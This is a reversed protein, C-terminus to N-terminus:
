FIEHFDMIFHGTVTDTHARAHQRGKRYFRMFLRYRLKRNRNGTGAPSIQFQNVPLPFIGGEHRGAMHETKILYQKCVLVSSILNRQFPQVPRRLFRASYFHFFVPCENDTLSSIECVAKIFSLTHEYAQIMRPPFIQVTGHLEIDPSRRRIIVTINLLFPLSCMIMFANDSSVSDHNMLRFVANREVAYHGYGRCGHLVNQVHFDPPVNVPVSANIGYNLDPFVLFKRFQWSEADPKKQFFFQFVDGIKSHPRHFTVAIFAPRGAVTQVPRFDFREMFIIDPRLFVAAM